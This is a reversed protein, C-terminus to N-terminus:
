ATTNTRLNTIQTFFNLIVALEPDAYKELLTTTAHGQTAYIRNIEAQRDATTEIIVKRRDNADKVRRVFRAKELRDIVGTIAGTTLGTLEALQGASIAGKMQLINLCQCATLDIGLQDAASQNFIIVSAIFERIELILADIMRQRVVGSQVLTKEQPFDRQPLESPSDPSYSSM